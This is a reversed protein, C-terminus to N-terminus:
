LIEDAVKFTDSIDRDAAKEHCSKCLCQMREPPGIIEELIITIAREWAEKPIGHIHHVQVKVERGKAVSKKAGCIACINHAAKLCAAHERSRLFGNRILARIKSRPTTLLKRGM